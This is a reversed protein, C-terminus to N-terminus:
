FLKKTSTRCAYCESVEKPRRDTVVKPVYEAPPENLDAPLGYGHRDEENHQTIRNVPFSAIRGWREDSYKQRVDALQQQQLARKHDRERLKREYQGWLRKWEEVQLNEVKKLFANERNERLRDNRYVQNIKHYMDAERKNLVYEKRHWPPLSRRTDNMTTNTKASKSASKASKLVTDSRSTSNLTTDDARSRPRLKSFDSTNVDMGKTQLYIHMQQEIKYLELDVPERQRRDQPVAIFRRMNRERIHDKTKARSILETKMRKVQARTRERRPPLADRPSKSRNLSAGSRYFSTNKRQMNLTTNEKNQAREERRLQLQRRINDDRAAERRSRAAAGAGDAGGMVIVRSTDPAQDLQEPVDARDSSPDRSKAHYTSNNRNAAHKRESNPPRSFTFFSFKTLTSM